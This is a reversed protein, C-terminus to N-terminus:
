KIIIKKSLTDVNQDKEITFDFKWEGKMGLYVQTEYVGDPKEVIPKKPPNMEMETMDYDLTIKAGLVSEKELTTIKLSM